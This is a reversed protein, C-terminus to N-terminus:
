RNPDGSYKFGFECWSRFIRESRRAVDGLQAPDDRMNREAILLLALRLIDMPAELKGSYGKANLIAMGVQVM